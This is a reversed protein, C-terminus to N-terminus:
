VLISNKNVVYNSLLDKENIKIVKGNILQHAEKNLPLLGGKPSGM